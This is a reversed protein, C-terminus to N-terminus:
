AAAPLDPTDAGAAYMVERLWDHEWRSRQQQTLM